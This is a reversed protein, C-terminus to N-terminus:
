TFIDMVVFQPLLTPSGAAQAPPSKACLSTCFPRMLVGSVRPGANAMPVAMVSAAHVRGIGGESRVGILMAWDESAPLASELTSAAARAAATAHVSGGTTAAM